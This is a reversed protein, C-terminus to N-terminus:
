GGDDVVNMLFEVKTCIPFRRLILDFNQHDADGVKDNWGPPFFHV